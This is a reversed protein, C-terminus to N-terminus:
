VGLVLLKKFKKPDETYLEIAEQFGMHEVVQIGKELYRYKEFDRKSEMAKELYAHPLNGAHEKFFTPLLVHVLAGALAEEVTIWEEVIKTVDEIGKTSNLGIQERIARHTHERLAIHFTEEVPVMLVAYPNEASTQWITYKDKIFEFTGSDKLHINTTYSGIEGLYVKGRLEIILTKNSHNSFSYTSLSEKALNNVLFATVNGRSIKPREHRLTEIKDYPNSLDTKNLVYEIVDRCYAELLAAYEERREPVFL